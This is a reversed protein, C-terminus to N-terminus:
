HSRSEHASRLSTRPLIPSVTRTITGIFVVPPLYTQDILGLQYAATSVRIRFGRSNTLFGLTSSEEVHFRAM